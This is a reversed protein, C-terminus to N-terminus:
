QNNLALLVDDVYETDFTWKAFTGAPITLDGPNNLSESTKKLYSPYILEVKYSLLAPKKKVEIVFEDSFFEGAQFRIQKGKQLNKFDYSFNIIDKKDLKFTHVGDVLYVEEPVQEGTIKLNLTLDDGQRVVLSKNLVNFQFPAKKKYFVRHHIIRDTGETLISPAAFALLVVAAIPVLAYSVYKKNEALNVAAVFPIPKFNAIRQNISAEILEKQEPSEEALQKLELTNILKDKIAPFHDGIIISAQQHDITKGLKFYAVLYRAVLWWILVLQSAIFGYFIVGRVTINFYGYYESVIFVLYSILFIAVWWISGRVLKNLYYKRIFNDIKQILQHYNQSM